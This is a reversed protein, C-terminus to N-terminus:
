LLGFAEPFDDKVIVERQRTASLYLAELIVQMRLGDEMNAPFPTDDLICDVLLHTSNPAKGEPIIRSALPVGGVEQNFLYDSGGDPKQVTEIGGKTGILKLSEQSYTQQYGAWSTEFLLSAGNEFRVFGTSYDEVDFEVGQEKALPVGRRYHATGSVTVPKPRGMLWLAIDIKHVGIDLMPGGGSKEKQGFWGGFGPIWNRRTWETYGHYVEGLAGTEMIKRAAMNVDRFRQSLNMFINKGTREAAHEMRLASALTHAMPKECMVHAGAELCDVTVPEHLFNPLAVSVVDPTCEALMAQYDTYAKAEPYQASFEQLRVEDLDVLAVLEARDNAAYGAAHARGM